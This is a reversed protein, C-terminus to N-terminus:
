INAKLDKLLQEDNDHKHTDKDAQKSAVVSRNEPLHDVLRRDCIQYQKM